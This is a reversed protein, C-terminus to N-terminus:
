NKGLSVEQREGGLSALRVSYESLMRNKLRDGPAALENPM